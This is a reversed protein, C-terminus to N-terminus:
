QQPAAEVPPREVALTAAVAWHLQLAAEVPSPPLEVAPTAVVVWQQSAAEAPSPPREVALTAVVSGRQNPAVGALIPPRQLDLFVAPRSAATSRAAAPANWTWQTPPREGAAAAVAAALALRAEIACAQKLILPPLILVLPQALPDKARWSQRQLDHGGPCIPVARPRM